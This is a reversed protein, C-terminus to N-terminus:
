PHLEGGRQLGCRRADIEGATIATLLDVARVAVVAALAPRHAARARTQRAPRASRRARGPRHLGCLMRRPGDTGDTLRQHIWQQALLRPDNSPQQNM